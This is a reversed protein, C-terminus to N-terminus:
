GVREEVWGRGPAGASGDRLRMPGVHHKLSRPRGERIHYLM